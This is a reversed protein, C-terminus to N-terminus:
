HSVEVRCSIGRKKLKSALTTRPIGLIRAARSKNGEAEELAAIILSEEIERLTLRKGIGTVHESSTDKLIHRSLYKASLTGDGISAVRYIEKEVALLLSFSLIQKVQLLLRM